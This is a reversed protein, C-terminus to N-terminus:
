AKIVEVKKDGATKALELSIQNQTAVSQDPASVTTKGQAIVTSGTVLISVLLATSIVTPIVNRNCNVM